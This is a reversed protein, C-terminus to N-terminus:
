HLHVPQGEPEEPETEQGEMNKHLEVGVVATEDYLQLMTSALIERLAKLGEESEEMGTPITFVWSLTGVLGEEKSRHVSVRGLRGWSIDNMKNLLLALRVMDEEDEVVVLSLDLNSHLRLIRHEAMWIFGLAIEEGEAPLTGKLAEPVAITAIAWLATDEEGIRETRVLKFPGDPLVVSEVFRQLDFSGAM